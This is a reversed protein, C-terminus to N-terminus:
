NWFNLKLTDKSAASFTVSKPTGNIICNSYCVGDISYVNEATANIVLTAGTDLSLTEIRTNCDQMHDAYNPTTM